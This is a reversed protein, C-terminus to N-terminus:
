GRQRGAESGALRAAQWGRQRGAESGALRAAQLGRQRGAESGALRAAQWGRQRGAESGALRAAQWGRQRGAESGALRAAQRGRQRGALMYACNILKYSLSNKKCKIVPCPTIHCMQTQYDYHGHVENGTYVTANRVRYQIGGGCSVPCRNWDNWESFVLIFVLYEFMYEAYFM